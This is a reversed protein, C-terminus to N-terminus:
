MELMASLSTLNVVIIVWTCLAIVYYILGYTPMQPHVPHNSVM